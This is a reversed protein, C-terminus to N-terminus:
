GGQHRLFFSVMLGGTVLGIVYIAAMVALIIAIILRHDDSGRGPQTISLRVLDWRQARKEAPRNDSM